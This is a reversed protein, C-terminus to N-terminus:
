IYKLNLECYKDYFQKIKFKTPTLVGLVGRKIVSMTVVCKINSFYDLILKINRIPDADIFIVIRIFLIPISHLM